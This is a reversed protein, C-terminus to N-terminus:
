LNLSKCHTNYEEVTVKMEKGFVKITKFKRSNKKNPVDISIEGSIMMLTFNNHCEKLLELHAKRSRKYDDSSCIAKRNFRNRAM